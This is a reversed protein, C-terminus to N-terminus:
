RGSCRPSRMTTAGRSCIAGSRTPALSCPLPSTSCSGAPSLRSTARRSGRAASPIWWVIACCRSAESSRTSCSRAFCFWASRRARCLARGIPSPREGAPSAWAMVLGLLLLVGSVKADCALGVAFGSGLAFGACARLGAKRCDALASLGVAAYWLLILPLDPTLGFLGVSIEPVLMLTFAALAAGAGPPERRARPWPPSGRLRPRLCRHGSTRPTPARCGAKGSCRARHCRHSGPSRPVGTASAARLLRLASRRRRIRTPERRLAQGRALGRQHRARGLRHAPEDRNSGTRFFRPSGSPARAAARSAVWEDVVGTATAARRGKARVRDARELVRALERAM